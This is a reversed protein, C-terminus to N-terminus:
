GGQATKKPSRRPRAAAPKSAAPQTAAPQAQGLASHLAAVQKKLAKVEKGLTYIRRHAEDLESRTPLDYIKLIEEMVQRQALRYAMNANLLKGQALVYRESRFAQLFVGEAGRTWMLILDRVHEVTEGREALAALDEGFQKFAAEWIEGVVAQYELHSLNLHVYADFGAQLKRSLERTMGLNPSAAARGLTQQYATRYADSMAGLAAPDGALAQGLQGPTSRLVAEWPQGFSQWQGLYTKWMEGLDQTIGVAQGPLGAWAQRFQAMAEESASQWDKPSKYRPAATEFARAAFEIFRLAIGQSAIFQEAVSHAVPEAASSWVQLSQAAAKQWEQALDSFSPTKAPQGWALEAWSQWLAQQAETWSRLLAASDEAWTQESM